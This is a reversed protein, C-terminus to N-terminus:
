LVVLRRGSPVTIIAGAGVVLPGVTLANRGTTLTYSTTVTPNVELFASDTGGGTAGGGLSTWSSGNYNQYANLDSNYIMLGAVPSVIANRQATTMVPGRFGKTTSTLALIASAPAAGGIGTNGSSDILVRTTGESTQFSLGNADIARLARILPIFFNTTPDFFGLTIWGTDASNRIKLLNVSTDFWWMNPYTQTPATAKANNTAIALLANNLDTRFQPFGQNAINYDHEAM